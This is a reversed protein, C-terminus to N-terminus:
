LITKYESPINKSFGQQSLVTLANESATQEAISKNVDSTASSIFIKESNFIRYVKVISFGTKQDKEFDYQITGLTEKNIDFLEKLRTKADFLQEYSIDIAIEDFIKKLIYYCSIYGLGPHTRRDIIYETVGIFAEFVDELISMKKGFSVNESVRIWKWFGLKDAIESLVQKSGYKIRLRAVIKVGFNSNFNPFRNHFYWVLFKNLTIDGLQEFFEYNSNSDFSIHTFAKSFLKMSNHDTILSIYSSDLRSSSILNKIFDPFSENEFRQPPSYYKRNNRYDGSNGYNQYEPSSRYSSSKNRYYPSSSKSSSSSKYPSAM